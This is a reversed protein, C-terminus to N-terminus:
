SKKYSGSVGVPKAETESLQYASHFDNVKGLVSSDTLGTVDTNKDSSYVVGNVAGDKFVAYFSGGNPLFYLTNELESELESKFNVNPANYENYTDDLEISLTLTDNAKKGTIKTISLTGDSHFVVAKVTADNLSNSITQAMDNLVYYDEQSLAPTRVAPVLVAALIAIIAIGAIIAIAAILKTHTFGEKKKIKNLMTIEEKSNIIKM